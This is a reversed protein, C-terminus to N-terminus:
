KPAIPIVYAGTANVNWQKETAFKEVLKDGVLKLNSDNLVKSAVYIARTAWSESTGANHTTVNLWSEDIQGIMSSPFSVGSVSGINGNTITNLDQIHKSWRILLKSTRLLLQGGLLPIADYCGPLYWYLGNYIQQYYWPDNGSLAVDPVVGQAHKDSEQKPISGEFRDLAKTYFNIIPEYDSNLILGRKGAQVTAKVVNSFVRDGLWYNPDAKRLQGALSSMLGRVMWKALQKQENTASPSDVVAILPGIHFHHLDLGSILFGNVLVHGDVQDGTYEPVYNLPRGAEGYGLKRIPEDTYYIPRYAYNSLIGKIVEKTIIHDHKWGYAAHGGTQYAKPFMGCSSWLESGVQIGQEAGIQQLLPNINTM